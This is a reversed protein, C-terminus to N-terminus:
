EGASAMDATIKAVVDGSVFKYAQIIANYFARDDSSGHAKIVGGNVGLLPAGGVEKYDFRKKFRKMNKKIFLAAIKSIYGSMLEQKLISGFASVSGEITKLIVNGVFGDCVCVDFDGFLIDRCECNGVFNIPMARLLENTAKTLENGKEDETGNSILAIRPNELKNVGGMYKSGMIAFQVLQEPTCDVNAGGDILLVQSGNTTPMIPCLAPRKIGSIRKIKLLSGVLLAGTNGSSVVCDAEKAAVMNIAKIMSSNAKQKVALSPQEHSSIVEPAHLITLKDSSFELKSIEKKLVEEDGSLVIEVGLDSHQNLFNISGKVAAFPSNDGGFADVVIRM